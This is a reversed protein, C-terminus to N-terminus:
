KKLVAEMVPDRGNFYDSSGLAIKLQPEIGQRTDGPISEHYRNSISCIAKSHPLQIVNEEGVFNPKSSTLEGAFVPHVLGEAKSIFLQAASFTNRGTLIYLEGNSSSRFQLLTELLPGLLDANGGNNHRVDVVLKRPSLVKLSDNLRKSFQVLTEGGDDMVQNFQVYLANEPKLSKMWYAEAVHQLYLPTSAKGSKSPILKPIGRVPQFSVVPFQMIEKRWKGDFTLSYQGNGEVGLAQLMGELSLMFPGIWNIGQDNDRSIFKGVRKMIEGSSITGIQDVRRGIWREYGPQADIVFLGDVFLYLRLPLAKVDIGEAGWPLVYTHGDGLMASLGLLEVLVQQDSYLNLSSRVKEFQHQFEAPFPASRYVYHHKKVQEQWFDMDKEWNIIRQGKCSFLSAVLFLLPLSKM